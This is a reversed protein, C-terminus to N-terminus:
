IPLKRHRSSSFSAPTRRRRHRTWARSTPRHTTSVFYGPVRAVLTAGNTDSDNNSDTTSVGATSGFTAYVDVIAGVEPVLGGADVVRVVREDGTLAGSTGARGASVNARLLPAGRAVDVTIARGIARAPDNLVDNPEQGAHRALVGVDDRGVIEGKLLTRQAVVVNRLPGLARAQAHITQIDTAVTRATLM